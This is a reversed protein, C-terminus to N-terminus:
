CLRCAVHLLGAADSMNSSTVTSLLSFDGAENGKDDDRSHEAVLLVSGFLM